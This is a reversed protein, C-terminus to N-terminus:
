RWASRCFVSGFTLGRKPLLVYICLVVSVCFAGLGLVTCLSLEARALAQGGLFSAILSAATM